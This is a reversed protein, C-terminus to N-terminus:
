SGFLMSVYSAYLPASLEWGNQMMQLSNTIFFYIVIITALALLLDYWPIRNKSATETIPLLIFITPIVLLLLTYMYMNSLLTYGVFFHFNFAQNVALFIVVITGIRLPWLWNNSLNRFRSTAAEEIENQM